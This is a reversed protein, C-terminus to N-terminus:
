RPACLRAILTDLALLSNMRGTKINLDTELLMELIEELRSMSFNATEKLRMRVAYDSKWGKIRAIEPPSLGREALDKVELLGRVQAAIGGLVAIPHKGEDLLKGLQDYAKRANREGIANALGFNEAEETYPVLLDVDASQIVRQSGVYLALKEIENDLTRLDTGVLKGLLEAAGPAITANHEKARRVIWARLNGKDPGTSHIIMAGIAAATKLVPHRNDLSKDEALVLDTTPPLHNLYDVLQELNESKNGLRDLYGVVIVLRRAALFPLADAHHRIYSLNLDHGELVIINLDALSPDDFTARLEAIKENSTFDDPGHFIYLM